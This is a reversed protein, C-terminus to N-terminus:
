GVVVETIEIQPTLDTDNPMDAMIERGHRAMGSRFAELSSVSLACSAADAPRVGPTGGATGRDVTDREVADGLRAKVMPM